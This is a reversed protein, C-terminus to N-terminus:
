ERFDAFNELPLTKASCEFYTTCNTREPPLTNESEPVNLARFYIKWSQNAPVDINFCKDKGDFIALKGAIPALRFHVTTQFFIVPQREDHEGDEVAGHFNM